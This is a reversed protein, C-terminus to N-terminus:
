LRLVTKRVYHIVIRNADDLLIGSPFEKQNGFIALVAEPYASSGSCVSKTVFSVFM